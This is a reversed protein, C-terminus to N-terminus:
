FHKLILFFPVMEIICLYLFYYVKGYSTNRSIGAYIRILNALYIVATILLMINIIIGINESPLSFILFNFFLLILGTIRVFFVIELIHPNLYQKGFFILSFYKIILLKSIYLILVVAIFYLIGSLEMNNSIFALFLSLNLVFTIDLIIQSANFSILGERYMLELYKPSGLGRIIEKLYAPYIFKFIILLIGSFIFFYYNITIIRNGIIDKDRSIFNVAPKEETNVSVTTQDITLKNDYTSDIIVTQIFLIFTLIFTNIM